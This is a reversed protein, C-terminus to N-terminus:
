SLEKDEDDEDGANEEEEVVKRWCVSGFVIRLVEDVSTLVVKACRLCPTKGTGGIKLDAISM